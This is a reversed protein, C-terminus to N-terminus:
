PALDTQLGFVDAVSRAAALWSVNVSWCVMAGVTVAFGIPALWGLASPWPVQSVVFAGIGVAICRHAARRLRIARVQAAAARDEVMEFVSKRRRPKFEYSQEAEDDGEPDVFPRAGPAVWSRAM